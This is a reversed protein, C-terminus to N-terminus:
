EGGGELCFLKRELGVGFSGRRGRKEEKSSYSSKKRQISVAFACADGTVFQVQM